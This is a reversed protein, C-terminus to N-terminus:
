DLIKHSTLCQKPYEIMQNNTGVKNSNGDITSSDWNIDPLNMNYAICIISKPLNYAIGKDQPVNRRHM